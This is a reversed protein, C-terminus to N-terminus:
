DLSQVQAHLEDSKKIAEAYAAKLKDQDQESFTTLVQDFLAKAAPMAAGALEIAKLIATVSLM